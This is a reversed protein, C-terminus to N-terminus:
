LIQCFLIHSEAHLFFFVKVRSFKEVSTFSFEDVIGKLLALIDHMGKHHDLKIKINDSNSFHSSTELLLVELKKLWFAKNYWRNQMPIEWEFFGRYGKSSPEYEGFITARTCFYGKCDHANISKWILHLCPWLFLQNFADEDSDHDIPAEYTKYRYLFVNLRYLLLCFLHM